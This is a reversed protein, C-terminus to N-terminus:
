KPQVNFELSFIKSFQIVYFHFYPTNTQLTLVSAATM